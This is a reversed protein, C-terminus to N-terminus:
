AALAAAVGEDRTGLLCEMFRRKPLSRRSDWFGDLTAVAQGDAHVELLQPRGLLECHAYSAFCEAFDDYPNTAGYLSAFDSGELGACATVLGGSDLKRSGYFDM